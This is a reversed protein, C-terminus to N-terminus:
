NIQNESTVDNWKEKEREGDIQVSGFNGLIQFVFRLIKTFNFSLFSSNLAVVSPYM